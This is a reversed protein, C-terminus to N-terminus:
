KPSLWPTLAERMTRAVSQRQRADLELAALLPQALAPQQYRCITAAQRWSPRAIGAYDSHVAALVWQMGLNLGTAPSAAYLFAALPGAAQSAWTSDDCHQSTETPNSVTVQHLITEAAQLAQDATTIQATPDPQSAAM